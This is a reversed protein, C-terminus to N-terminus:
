NSNKEWRNKRSDHKSLFDRSIDALHKDYLDSAMGESLLKLWLSEIKNLVCDGKHKGVADYGAHIVWSPVVPVDSSLLKQCTEELKKQINKNKKVLFPFKCFLVHALEIQVLPDPNNHLLGEDDELIKCLLSIVDKHLKRTRKVFHLGEVKVLDCPDKLIKELLEILYDTDFSYAHLCFCYSAYSRLIKNAAPIGNKETHFIKNFVNRIVHKTNTRQDAEKEHEREPLESVDRIILRAMFTNENNVICKDAFLDHVNKENEGSLSDVIVTMIDNARAAVVEQPLKDISDIISQRLNDVSDMDLTFELNVLLIIDM